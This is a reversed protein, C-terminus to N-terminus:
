NKKVQLCNPVHTLNVTMFFLGMKDVKFQVLGCLVFEMNPTESLDELVVWSVDQKWSLQFAQKHKLEYVKWCNGHLLRIRVSSTCSEGSILFFCFPESSQYTMMLESTIFTNFEKIGM